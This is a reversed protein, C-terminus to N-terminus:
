GLLEGLKRELEDRTFPKQMFRLPGVGALRTARSNDSYGSILLVRVTPSIARLTTLTEEGSLTPMTLDLLVLVYSSPNLAFQAIGEAGDQAIVTTFGFTRLLEAAAERVPAEDDIVLVNGTYESPTTSVPHTADVPQTLSPPLLLTFISGKGLTSTVHLAGKHGRVIGRVAALGLGRGAFKTTFFPDFIRAMTEPTMGCGTDRVELFVYDGAELTEGENSAQLYARDFSRVGTTVHIDGTHEGMADAANIVLNMVIQRLQTADAMAVTPRPSFDLHLRARAGLSVNLLPLTEQVLRSLDVAEIMFSSRGSYSLMQQCLEAARASALEIKHVNALAPANEGLKLRALSANGLIGTLINNFDHAIGGALLGLSELKQSELLRREMALKAQEAQKRATIDIALGELFLPRGDISYIGRGRSLVWREAGDRTFLRYEVEINERAALGAVTVKRVRDLDEPHILERFHVAGSIFDAAPYGTLSEVGVSIYIVKMQEDYRCRYAMGPLAHLLSSLQRRSETLEATREEVERRIVETRRGLVLILGALLSTIAMIGTVRVWRLPAVQEELWGPYPRYIIKWTRGGIPLSYEQSLGRSFEEETPTTDRPATDDNPRYYLVRQAPDTESSDVFLVDLISGTNWTRARVTELMDHVRFVGQVFGAFKDPAGDVGGRYVPWIMIVGREGHKEQVLKIQSTLVMQRSQRAHLLDPGTPGGQLDYGFARENDAIPYVYTIPYYEPREVAPILHGAADVETFGATGGRRRQLEAEAAERGAAPVVPIWEFAQVGPTRQALNGAIREFEGPTVGGELSFATRLSYLGDEYRGLMDNLRANLVSSRRYFNIEAQARERRHLEQFSLVGGAVGLIVIGVAVLHFASYRRSRPARAM